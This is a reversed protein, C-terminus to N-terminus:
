CPSLTAAPLPKEPAVGACRLYEIFVQTLFAYATELPNIVRVQSCGKCFFFFVFYVGNSGRSDM